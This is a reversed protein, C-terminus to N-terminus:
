CELSREHLPHKCLVPLGRMPTKAYRQVTAGRIAGHRLLSISVKVQHMAVRRSAITATGICDRCYQLGERCSRAPKSVLGRGALTRCAM